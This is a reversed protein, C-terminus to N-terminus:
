ETGAERSQRQLLIVTPFRSPKSGRTQTEQDYRLYCIGGIVLKSVKAAIVGPTTGVGPGLM